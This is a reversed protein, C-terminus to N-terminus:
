KKVFLLIVMPISLVVMLCGGRTCAYDWANWTASGYLSVVACDWLTAGFGYPDIPDGIIM